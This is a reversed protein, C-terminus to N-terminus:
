SLHEKVMQSQSQLALGPSEGPCPRSAASTSCCSRDCRLVFLHCSDQRCSQERAFWQPGPM